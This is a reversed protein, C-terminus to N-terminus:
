AIFFLRAITAFRLRAHNELSCLSELDIQAFTEKDTITPFIDFAALLSPTASNEYIPLVTFRKAMLRGPPDFRESLCDFNNQTTLCIRWWSRSRDRSM